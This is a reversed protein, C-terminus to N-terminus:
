IDDWDKLVPQYGKGAIARVVDATGREDRIAFQPSDKRGLYGGVDTRSGASMRTIGLPILNDRFGSRERTSISIGLRPIFLRYALIFQVIDIDEIMGGSHSMGEARNLRPLSVSIETDPFRSSLYDAHLGAMFTEYRKEGLGLLTGITISRLGAEAAREPANLRCSYDAKRGSPHMVSYISEDYVEQYLNLGDAGAEKMMKYEHTELPYVELSVSAFYKKLLKVADLIYRPSSRKRDEGTLVLVHRMGTGSIKAASVEIEELSLRRRSINNTKRFGCYLCDNSCYSSIYLPIYLGITRGFNRITMGHSRQAMKEIFPRAGPSLLNLFDREKLVPKNLSAEIEKDSLTSFYRYIDFGAYKKM